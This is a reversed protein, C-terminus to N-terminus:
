LSNWATFIARASMCSSSSSSSSTLVYMSLYFYDTNRIWIRMNKLRGSGSGNTLPVSGAGSGEIILCFYLLFFRLEQQTTVEKHCKIKSFHHLHLKLLLFCFINSFFFKLQRRSPWERFYWSGFENALPVTGRIRIRVLIDRIRLVPFLQNRSTGPPSLVKKKM